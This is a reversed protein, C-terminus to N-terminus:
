LKEGYRQPAHTPNYNQICPTASHTAAEDVEALKILTKEDFIV